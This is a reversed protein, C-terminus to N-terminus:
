CYLGYNIDMADVNLLEKYLLKWSDSLKFDIVYNVIYYYRLKKSAKEKFRLKLEMQKSNSNLICFDDLIVKRDFINKFNQIKVHENLYPKITKKISEILLNDM